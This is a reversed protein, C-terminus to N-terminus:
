SRRGAPHPRGAPQGPRQHAQGVHLLVQQPEEFLADPMHFIPSCVATTLCMRDETSRGRTFVSERIFTMAPMSSMESASHSVRSSCCAVPSGAHGAWRGGGAGAVPGGTRPRVPFAAFDGGAGGGAEPDQQGAPGHEGHRHQGGRQQGPVQCVQDGAAAPGVGADRRGRYQAHEGVGPVRGAGPGVGLPRGGPTSTHAIM